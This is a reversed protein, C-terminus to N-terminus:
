LADKIKRITAPGIGAITNLLAILEDKYRGPPEASETQEKHKAETEKSGKEYGKDYITKLFTEFAARDMQKAANFQERTALAELGSKVKAM